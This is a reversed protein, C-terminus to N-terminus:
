SFNKVLYENIATSEYMWQAGSASDIRLCPVQDQKGGEILERSAQSDKRIEKMRIMLGQRLMQRRVKVCFPCAELHYLTLGSTKADLSRQAEASRAPPRPATLRDGLLIFFGLFARIGKLIYGM